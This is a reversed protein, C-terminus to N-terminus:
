SDYLPIRVLVAGAVPRHSRINCCICGHVLRHRVSLVCPTRLAHRTGSGTYRKWAMKRDHGDGMRFLVVRDYIRRYPGSPRQHGIHWKCFRTRRHTGDASIGCDGLHREQKRSLQAGSVRCIDAHLFSYGDSNCDLCVGCDTNFVHSDAGAVTHFNGKTVVLLGSGEPTMM